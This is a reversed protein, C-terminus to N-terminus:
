TSCSLRGTSKMSSSAFASLGAGREVKRQHGAPAAADDQCFLGDILNLGLAPSLRASEANKNIHRALLPYSWADAQAGPEACAEQLRYKSLRLGKRMRAFRPCAELMSSLAANRIGEAIRATM